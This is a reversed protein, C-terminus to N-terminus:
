KLFCLAVAYGKSPDFPSKVKMCRLNTKGDSKTGTGNSGARVWSGESVTSDVRVHLQGLLGVCTWEDKRQSRPVNAQVPDFDANEVPVLVMTRANPNVIMPRDSETEGDSPSWSADPVLAEWDPDPVSRYLPEGFEGTMFRKAWTFPTDGGCIFATASVVGLVDDGESAAKVRPGDLSVLTGLPIEGLSANEFYEAYDAFTQSGTIQGAAQVNGNAFAHFKRNATSASGSSADGLAISRAQDNITRRGMVIAGSQRAECLNGSLVMAGDGAATSGTSGLNVARSGSASSRVSAVNASNNGGTTAGDCAVNATYSGSASSSVSAFNGTYQAGSHVVAETSDSYGSGGNTVRVSVIEGSEGVEVSAEAGSGLTKRDYFRVACGSAYGSGPSEVSVSAVAGASVVVSLRAGHGSGAECTSAGVNVGNESNSYCLRTALNAGGGSEVCSFHGSINSGQFGYVECEESGANFSQPCAAVCQRSSYNGSVNGYSWSYISGVNVARVGQSRCNQSAIVAVLSRTTRGPVTPTGAGGGSYAGSAPGTDGEDGIVTSSEPVPVVADTLVVDGFGVLQKLDIESSVTDSPYGVVYAGEPVFVLKGTSVALKFAETDDTVGDGKAGFDKVNVVDSFREGLPRTETTGNAKVVRNSIDEGATDGPTGMGTLAYLGDPGNALENLSGVVRPIDYSYSKVEEAKEAADQASEEAREASESASESAKFLDEILEEPTREYIEPITVARSVKDRVQQILGTNKDWAANMDEPSFSGFNQLGLLQTYPINSIIVLKVGKAPATHMTVTGGAEELSVSYESEPVLEEIVDDPAKRYVAVQDESFVKFGFAFERVQGTGTYTPSRRGSDQISM